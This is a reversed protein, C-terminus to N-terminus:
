RELGVKYCTWNRIENKLCYDVSYRSYYYDCTKCRSWTPFLNNKCKFEKDIQKEIKNM